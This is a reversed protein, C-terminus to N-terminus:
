DRAARRLQADVWESARPNNIFWLATKIEDHLDATTDISAAAQGLTEKQLLRWVLYVGFSVGWSTFLITLTRARFPSVLDWAKLALPFTLFLTSGFTLERLLRNARIRREVRKLWTTIIERDSM